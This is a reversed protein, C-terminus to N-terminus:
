GGGVHHTAHACPNRPVSTVWESGDDQAPFYVRKEGWATFAPGPTSGYGESLRVNLGPASLDTSRTFTVPLAEEWCDDDDDDGVHFTYQQPDQCYVEVLTDDHEKLLHELSHRWTYFKKM